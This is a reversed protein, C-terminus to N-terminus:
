RKIAWLNRRLTTWRSMPLKQVSMSITLIRGGLIQRQVRAGCLLIICVLVMPLMLRLLRRLMIKKKDM